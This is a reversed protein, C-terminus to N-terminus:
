SLANPRRRRVLAAGMILVGFTAFSSPEPIARINDVGFFPDVLGDIQNASSIRLTYTGPGLVSTVGTSWIGSGPFDGGGVNFARINSGTGDVAAGGVFSSGSSIAIPTHVLTSGSFIDVRGTDGFATGDRGDFFADFVIANNTGLTFSQSVGGLSNASGGDGLYFSSGQTPTWAAFSSVTNKSNNGFLTWGSLGSEFGGNTIAANAIPTILLTLMMSLIMRM